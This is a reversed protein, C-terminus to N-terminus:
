SFNIKNYFYFFYFYFLVTKENKKNCENTSGKNTEKLTKISTKISM